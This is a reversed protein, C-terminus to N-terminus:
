DLWDADVDVVVVTGRDCHDRVLQEAEEYDSAVGFQLATILSPTWGVDGTAPNHHLFQHSRASQILLRAM